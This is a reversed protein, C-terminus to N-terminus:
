GLGLHNWAFHILVPVAALIGIAQWLAYTRILRSSSAGPMVYAQKRWQLGVMVLPTGWVITNALSISWLFERAIADTWGLGLTRYRLLLTWMPVTFLVAIFAHFGARVTDRTAARETRWRDIMTSEDDTTRM